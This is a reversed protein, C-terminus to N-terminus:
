TNIAPLDFFLLESDEQFNFYLNDENIIFVGDRSNVRNKNIMVAGKAVVLYMQRGNKLEFDLDKEQEGNILYLTADQFLKIINSNVLENEGSALIHIGPEHFSNIAVNEWRPQINNENPHIWIQFLLTEVDEHNYESHTIGTGASMIQIEGAKTVGKNGLSDEHTIAGQRIYTIIEMDRHSHMPFGTGPQICDDNWVILPPYGAKDPHYYEAFNFHYHADLWGYNHNGLESYPFISIM